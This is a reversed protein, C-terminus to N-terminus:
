VLRLGNCSHLPPISIDRSSILLRRELGIRDLFLMLEVWADGRLRHGFTSKLGHAAVADLPDREAVTVSRTAGGNPNLMANLEECWSTSKPESFFGSLQLQWVASSAVGARQNLSIDFGLKYNNIGCATLADRISDYFGDMEFADLSRARIRGFEPALSLVQGSYRPDRLLWRMVRRADEAFWRQQARMCIPCAGSLCPRRPPACADLKDALALAVISTATESGALSAMHKAHRRLRQAKVDRQRKAQRTSTSPRQGRKSANITLTPPGDSFLELPSYPKAVMTRKLTM